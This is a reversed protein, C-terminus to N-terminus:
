KTSVELKSQLKAIVKQMRLKSKALRGQVVAQQDATLIPMVESFVKARSIAMKEGAASVEGFAKQVAGQDFTASTTAMMLNQRAQLVAIRSEIFEKHHGQMIGKVQEKQASTLNLGKFVNWEQHGCREGHKHHRSHKGDKGHRDQEVHKQGGDRDGEAYVNSVMSGGLLMAISITVALSSFRSVEKM